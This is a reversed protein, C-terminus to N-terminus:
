QVVRLEKLVHGGNKRNGYGVVVEALWEFGSVKGRKCIGVLRKYQVHLVNEDVLTKM